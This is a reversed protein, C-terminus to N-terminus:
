WIIECKREKTQSVIHIEIEIEKTRKIAHTYLNADLTTFVMEM